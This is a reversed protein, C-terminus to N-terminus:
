AAELWDSVTERPLYGRNMLITIIVSNRVGFRKAAQDIQEPTPRELDVIRRLEFIPCLLTQAFARQFKQRDTRARSVVGLGRGGTFVEDGIMRALEFRRDMQPGMALALRRQQAHEEAKASYPLNRATATAEKLDQWRTRLMDGLDLGSVIEGLNLVERLHLAADEAAQWPVLDLAPGQAMAQRVPSFDVVLNSRRTAALVAHLTQPADPGPEAIAAEEVAAEGIEEEFAVMGDVVGEPATDPDYGLCAELRRWAALEIDERERGLQEILTLLAQADDHLASRALVARFFSDVGQEYEDGTLTQPRQQLYRIPGVAGQDGLNPSIIVRQGVGYIMLPPWVGGSSGSNLEHRLRWDPTLFRPNGIPEWRLRWWNDAFWFALSVTSARFSTRSRDQEEDFLCTLVQGRVSLRIDAIHADASEPPAPWDLHIELPM